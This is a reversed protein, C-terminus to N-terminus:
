AKRGGRAKREAFRAEAVKQFGKATLRFRSPHLCECRRLAAVHEDLAAECIGVREAIVERATVFPNNRPNAEYMATLIRLRLRSCREGTETLSVIPLDVMNKAHGIGLLDRTVQPTLFLPAPKLNSM